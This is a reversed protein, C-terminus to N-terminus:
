AAAFPKPKPSGKALVRTSACLLASSRSLSSPFPEVKENVKGSERVYPLILKVDEADLARRAATVVPGDMTNPLTGASIGSGTPAPRAQPAAQALALGPVTLALAAILATKM